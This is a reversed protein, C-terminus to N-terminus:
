EGSWARSSKLPTLLAVGILALLVVVPAIAMYERQKNNTPVKPAVAEDLLTVRVNEQSSEFELQKLHTAVQSEEKMLIDLQHSIFEADPVANNEIKKEVVLGALYRALQKKQKHLAAVNLRLDSLTQRVHADNGGDGAAETVELISQAKILDVDTNILEDAVKQFQAETVSALPSRAPDDEKGSENTVFPRRVAIQGNVLIKKLEARKEDIENKYKKLQDTLSNRLNSNGSRQHEGNYELYSHVIANVIAAAHDKEGLELAVRILYADKVIEVRMHERLFTRPDAEKTITSLRVVTPSAIAPALVRDSTLLGIQTNLYPEAGKFVNQESPEYLSWSTPTVRLISFAEYTPEVLLYALYMVPLSVIFWLLLIVPWRRTIRAFIGPSRRLNPDPKTTTSM